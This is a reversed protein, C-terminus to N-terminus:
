NKQEYNLITVRVQHGNITFTNTVRDRTVMKHGLDLYAKIHRRFTSENVGTVECYHRISTYPHQKGQEDIGWLIYRKYKGTKLTFKHQGKM